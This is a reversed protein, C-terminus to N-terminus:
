ERDRKLTATNRRIHSDTRREEEPEIIEEDRRDDSQEDIGPVFVPMRRTGPFRPPRQNPVQMKRLRVDNAVYAAM